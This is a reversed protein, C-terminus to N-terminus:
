NDPYGDPNMKQWRASDECMKVLDREAKWGLVESAKTPDAYCEAIDGPRRPAIKYKVPSGWVDGFAKVMELVSYGNGTGVNIYDIGKMRATYEIAKLHALALDVVHIYDRVGTGDPTNYDDGFVSLCELKGAAVKSIYPLLNNPVGRPDEGILGSEHAGIPNFYRLVCVSLEPYASTCDKLIREIMLKTEGYPNTTSLPFDERIPVSKPLGYVTASSSFVIRNVGYKVMCDLLNFTSTLNNHYYKIPLACSEGVAKLGAFHIVSDIDPHLKFVEELKCKDLMDCEIFEPRKGTIKEIRDLVCIKSNSLNDIIIANEGKNLLEVTTHSGIYGTGGTVLISM